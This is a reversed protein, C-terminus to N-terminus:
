KNMKSYSIATWIIAVPILIGLWLLCLTNAGPWHAIKFWLGVFTLALVVANFVIACKSLKCSNFYAIAGLIVSIGALVCAGFIMVNGGPWHLLKFLVAWCLIVGTIISCIM